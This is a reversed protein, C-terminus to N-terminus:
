GNGGEWRARAWAVTAGVLRERAWGLTFVHDTDAVVELELRDGARARADREHHLQFLDYATSGESYLLLLATGRELLPAVDTRVPASSRGFFRAAVARGLTRGFAGLDSQGSLVRGWAAPRALRGAYYRLRTRTSARELTEELSPADDQAPDAERRVLETPNFLALGAVREDQFAARWAVDAGLCLGGLVFREDGRAAHLWDMASRTEAVAYRELPEADGRPASDGLGSFDFRLSAFGAEALARALRVYLRSPGVHPLLGANLLLFTPRGAVATAPEALVGVLGRDPGFAIARENM